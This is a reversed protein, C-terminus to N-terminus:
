SYYETVIVIGDGGDGGAYGNAGAAGGNGGAGVTVTETAGLASALILKRSYGGAHGGQGARNSSSGSSYDDSSGGGAGYKGDSGGAGDNLAGGGSFHSDGGTSAIGSSDTQSVGEAMGGDANIDGSSGTGANASNGNGGGDGGTASCHSGFSTTGGASGAPTTLGNGEAGGGGGVVEVIVYKLGADKTWTGSSTFQVIEPSKFVSEDTIDDQTLLPNTSSVANNVNDLADRELETIEYPTPFLVLKNNADGVGIAYEITGASTGLAGATNSAYYIQGATYSITTDLGQV